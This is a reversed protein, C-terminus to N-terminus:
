RGANTCRAVCVQARFCNRYCTTVQNEWQKLAGAERSAGQKAPSAYAMLSTTLHERSAMYQALLKQELSHFAMKPFVGLCGYFSGLFM